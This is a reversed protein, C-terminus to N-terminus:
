PLHIRIGELALLSMMIFLYININRFLKPSADRLPTRGALSRETWILWLAPPLLLLCGAASRTSGYLPLALSAVAAAVIWAFTIRGIQATNLVGTLSPLGAKEYEKGHRLVLLWFHPVQWMFFLFCVAALGPDLLTGGASVWGVAPPIMGVAAGPVAAFATRKKLWTYVGNYWCIAFGGLCAAQVNILTLLITGAILAIVSFLLAQVPTLTNSPLPRKRTREMKADLDREQWQNLASAGCALIFVAALPTWLDSVRHFPALFFGTAASSATFLSIWVRSLTLYPKVTGYSM